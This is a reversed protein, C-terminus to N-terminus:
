ATQRRRNFEGLLSSIFELKHHARNPDFWRGASQSASINFSNDSGCRQRRRTGVCIAAAFLWTM